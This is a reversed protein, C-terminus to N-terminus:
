AARRRQWGLGLLGISLLALVGPAPVAQVNDINGDLAGVGAIDLRISTVASLDGTLGVSARHTLSGPGPTAPLSGGAIAAGGNISVSWTSGGLDAGWDFEFTNESSLDVAPGM